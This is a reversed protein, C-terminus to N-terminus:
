PFLPFPSSPFRRVPSHSLPSGPSCPFRTQPKAAGRATPRQGVTAEVGCVLARPEADRMEKEHGCPHAWPERCLFRCLRM